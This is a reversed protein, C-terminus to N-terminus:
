PARRAGRTFACVLLYGGGPAYTTSVVQLPVLVEPRGVSSLVSLGADVGPPVWPGVFLGAGGETVDRVEVPLPVASGPVALLGRAGPSIVPFPPDTPEAPLAPPPAPPAEKSLARRMREVDEILAQCARVVEDARQLLERAKQLEKRALGSPDKNPSAM